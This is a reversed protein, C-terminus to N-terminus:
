FKSNSIKSAATAVGKSPLSKKVCKPSEIIGEFYSTRCATGPQVKKLALVEEKIVGHLESAAAM